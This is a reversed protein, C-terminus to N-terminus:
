KKNHVNVNQKDPQFYKENPDYGERLMKQDGQIMQRNEQNLRDYRNQSEQIFKNEGNMQPTFKDVGKEMTWQQYAQRQTTPSADAVLSAKNGRSSETSAGVRNGTHVKPSKESPSPTGGNHFGKQDDYYQVPQPHEAQEEAREAEIKACRACYAEAHSAHLTSITALVCLAKPLVRFM